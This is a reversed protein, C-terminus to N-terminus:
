KIVRSMIKVRMARLCGEQVSNCFGLTICSYLMGTVSFETMWTSLDSFYPMWMSQVARGMHIVSIGAGVHQAGANRKKKLLSVM